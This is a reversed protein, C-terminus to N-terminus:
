HCTFFVYKATPTSYHDLAKRLLALDIHAQLAGEESYSAICSMLRAVEEAVMEVVHALVRRCQGPCVKQVEANVAILNALIEKIYPRVDREQESRPGPWTGWDFRGLYMSPEITGVLPDTRSELYSECLSKDLTNLSAVAAERALALPPTEQTGTLTSLIKMVSPLTVDRTHLCNSLIVLLKNEGSDGRSGSSPPQSAAPSSILQSLSLSSSNRVEKSVSLQEFTQTFALLLGQVLTGYQRHATPNALLSAERQEGPASALVSERLLTVAESVREEFLAPLSTISGGELVPKTGGHSMHHPLELVWTERKYLHRVQETAQKLIASMCHLRLEQILNTVLAIAETPLDLSSLSRHLALTQAVCHPLWPGLETMSVTMSASRAPSQTAARPAPVPPPVLAARVLLCVSTIGELVMDKFKAHQGTLVKTQLEGSFYAQGLRWLEPFQESVAEVAEEVLQVQTPPEGQFLQQNTCFVPSSPHTDSGIHKERLSALCTLLFKHRAEIAEWAPNGSADLSILNRILKKQEELPCPMTTLRTQLQLRLSNIRQEVEMFVRQFIPIDSGGFLSHARAVDNVVLDYDGKRSNREIQSPLSFLFRNRQMASLANRTADAKDRRTLVEQFLRLAEGRSAIWCM